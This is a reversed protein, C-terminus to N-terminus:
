ILGKTIPLWRETQLRHQLRHLAPSPSPHVLRLLMTITFVVVRTVEGAKKAVDVAVTYYEKLQHDLVEVPMIERPTKQSLIEIVNM